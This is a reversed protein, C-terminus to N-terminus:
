LAKLFSCILTEVEDGQQVAELTRADTLSLVGNRLVEIHFHREDKGPLPLCSVRREEFSFQITLMRRPPTVSNLVWRTGGLFAELRVAFDEPVSANYRSIDSELRDGLEGWFEWVKAKYQVERDVALTNKNDEADKRLRKEHTIEDLWDM